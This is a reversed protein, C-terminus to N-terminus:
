RTILIVFVLLSLDIVNTTGYFYCKLLLRCGHAVNFHVCRAAYALSPYTRSTYEATFNLNFSILRGLTIDRTAHGTKVHIQM